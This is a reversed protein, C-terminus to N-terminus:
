FKLIEIGTADIITKASLDTEANSDLGTLKDKYVQGGFIGVGMTSDGTSAFQSVPHPEFLIAGATNLGSSAGDDYKEYLGSTTNRAIVQGAPYGDADYALRVPMLIAQQRNQALIIPHDARFIQGSFQADLNGM